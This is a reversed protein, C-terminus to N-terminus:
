NDNKGKITSMGQQLLALGVIILTLAIGAVVIMTLDGLIGQMGAKAVRFIEAIDM